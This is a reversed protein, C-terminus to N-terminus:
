NYSCFTWSEHSSWCHRVFMSVSTRSLSILHVYFIHESM